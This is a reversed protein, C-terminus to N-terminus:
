QNDQVFRTVQKVAAPLRGCPDSHPVAEPTVLRTLFDMHADALGTRYDVCTVIREHAASMSPPPIAARLSASVELGGEGMAIAVPIISNQLERWTDRDCSGDSCIALQVAYTVDGHSAMASTMLRDWDAVPGSLWSDLQELAPGMTRAYAQDTTLTPTSLPTPTPALLSVLAAPANGPLQIFGLAYALLGATLFLSVIFGCGLLVWKWTATQKSQSRQASPSARGERAPHPRPQEGTTAVPQMAPEDEPRAASPSPPPVTGPPRVNATAALMDLGRRAAANQPNITLVNELCIIREEDTDVAGSLWLWALEHRDEQEIVRILLERAEAKRGAKVAAIGQALLNDAM